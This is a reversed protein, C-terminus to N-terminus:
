PSLCTASALRHSITVVTMIFTLVLHRVYVFAVLTWFLEVAICVITDLIVLRYLEQGIVTGACDEQLVRTGSVYLPTQESTLKTRRYLGYLLAYLSLM